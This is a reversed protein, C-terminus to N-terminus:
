RPHGDAVATTPPRGDFCQAPRHAAMKSGAPGMLLHRGETPLRRLLRRSHKYGCHESWMLSLMALEVDNPDRGLREVILEYEYDTLGLVRHRSPSSTSSSM